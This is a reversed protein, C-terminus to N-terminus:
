CSCTIPQFYHVANVYRPLGVTVLPDLWSPVLRWIAIVLGAHNGQIFANPVSYWASATYTTHLVQGVVSAQFLFNSQKSM